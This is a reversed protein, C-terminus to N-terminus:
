QPATGNTIMWTMMTPMTIAKGPSTDLPSVLPGVTSTSLANRSICPPLSSLPLAGAANSGGPVAADPAAAGLPEPAADDASLSSM